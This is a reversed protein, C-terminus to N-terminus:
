TMKEGQINVQIHTHTYLTKTLAPRRLPVTRATFLTHQTQAREPLLTAVTDTLKLDL